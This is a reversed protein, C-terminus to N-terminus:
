TLDGKSNLKNSKIM